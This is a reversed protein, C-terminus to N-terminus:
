NSSLHIMIPIFGYCELFTILRSKDWFALKMNGEPSPVLVFGSKFDVPVKYIGDKEIVEIESISHGM